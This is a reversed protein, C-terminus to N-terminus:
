DSYNNSEFGATFSPLDGRKTSRSVDCFMNHAGPVIAAEGIVGSEIEGKVFADEEDSYEFVVGRTSHFPDVSKDVFGSKYL